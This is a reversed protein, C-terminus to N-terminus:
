LWYVASDNNLPLIRKDIIAKLGVGKVQKLWEKYYSYAKEILPGSVSEVSDGNRSRIIPFASFSYPDPSIIHNIIFLAEVQTSYTRIQRPVTQSRKVNYCKPTVSCWSTDGEYSLLEEIMKVKESDSYNSFKFYYGCKLVPSRENAFILKYCKSGGKNQFDCSVSEKNFYKHMNGKPQGVCNLSVGCIIVMLLYKM